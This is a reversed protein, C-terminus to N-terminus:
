PRDHPVTVMVTTSAANGAADECGVGLSYIRGGGRGDREARLDATLDGTIVWDLSTSGDGLGDGPENSAVSLIRCAAEGGDFLDYSEVEVRVSRLKHNPPWLM